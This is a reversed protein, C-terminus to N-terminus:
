ASDAMQSTFWQWTRRLGEQLSTSASWDYVRLAYGSDMVIRSADVARGVDYSRHLPKGSAAEMAVFLENLSVGVGSSANFTRVGESMPADVAALCLAIFDDIYLYDRVASGDGWVSLTEGRVIKGFGTPVIGFGRREAQGPGYLNSPRLLTAASGCQSSWARIFHEAAVKGAGHYSRPDVVATESASEESGVAYLSGGSSLYLLNTQPAAQMAELLALTFRLNGNLEALPRGASSGPTSATAVHVVVRSREILPKFHEPESLECIVQEINVGGLDVPRRTVAIVHEDRQALARVLHQGVFGGAGLILISDNVPIVSWCIDTFARM